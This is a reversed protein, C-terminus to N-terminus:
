AALGFSELGSIEGSVRALERSCGNCLAQDRLDGCGRLLVRIDFDKECFPGAIPRRKITERYVPCRSGVPGASETCNRHIANRRAVQEEVKAKFVTSVSNNGFVCANHLPSFLQFASDYRKFYQQERCTKQMLDVDYTLDALQGKCEQAANCFEKAEEFASEFTKYRADIEPNM